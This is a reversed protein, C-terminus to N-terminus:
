RPAPGRAPGGAAHPGRAPVAPVFLTIRLAPGLTRVIEDVTMSALPEVALVYLTFVLGGIQGVFTGARHRADAGGIRDALQDILERHLGRRILAALEPDAVAARVASLLPLGTEPQDWVTVLTRVARQPLTELDGELLKALIDAPHVSIELVAAFLGRKSGFYYSILAADVGVDVALSRMTVGDYGERHFRDRAVALIQARVDPSGPQRGRRPSSNM